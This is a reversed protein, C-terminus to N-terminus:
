AKSRSMKRALARSLAWITRKTGQGPLAGVAPIVCRLEPEASVWVAGSFTGFVFGQTRGAKPTGGLNVPPAAPIISQPSGQWSFVGQFWKEESFSGCIENYRMSPFSTPKPLLILVSLHPHPISIAARRDGAM